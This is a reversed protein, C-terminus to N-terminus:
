GGHAEVEDAMGFGGGSLRVLQAGEGSLTALLGSRETRPQSGLVRV